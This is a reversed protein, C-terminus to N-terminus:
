RLRSQRECRWGDCGFHGAHSEPDTDPEPYDDPETDADTNGYSEAGGYANAFGDGRSSADADHHDAAGSLRGQVRYAPTRCSIRNDSHSNKEFRTREVNTSGNHIYAHM